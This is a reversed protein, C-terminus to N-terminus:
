RDRKGRARKEAFVIDKARDVDSNLKGTYEVAAGTFSLGEAAFGEQLRSLFGEPDCAPLIFVIEDGSYWKGRILVDGARVHLARRIRANSEDHGIRENLDHLGDIDLFILFRARDSVTPLELELASRTVIGYSPDTSLKEIIGELKRVQEQLEKISEQKNKM